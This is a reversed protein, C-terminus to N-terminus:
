YHFFCFVLLVNKGWFQLRSFAFAALSSILVIGIVASTTYILSNLFYVGFNGQTWATYFNSFVMESPILSQDTFITERSMLASRVMWLLPFVCTLAVALLFVHILIAKIINGVRYRNM